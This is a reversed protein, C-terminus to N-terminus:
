KMIGSSHRGWREHLATTRVNKHLQFGQPSKLIGLGLGCQISALDSDKPHPGLDTTKLVGRTIGTRVQPQFGTVKM